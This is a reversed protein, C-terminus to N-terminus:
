PETWYVVGRINDNYNGLSGAVVLSGNSASVAFDRGKGMVGVALQDGGTLVGYAGKWGVLVLRESAKEVGTWTTSDGDGGVAEWSEGEDRSLYVDKGAGVAVQRSDDCYLDRFFSGVRTSVNPEKAAQWADGSTPDDTYLFLPEGVAAQERLQGTALFRSGVSCMARVTVTLPAADHLQPASDSEYSTTLGDDGGWVAVSSGVAVANTGGGPADLFQWDSGDVSTAYFEKTGGEGDPASGVALFASEFWAISRVSYRLGFKQTVRWTKGDTSSLAFHNGEVSAAVAVAFAVFTGNGEAMAIFGGVRESDPGAIEGQTWVLDAAGPTTAPEGDGGTTASGGNTSSGGRDPAGASNAEGANSPAGGNEAPIAADNGSCALGTLTLAIWAFSVRSSM